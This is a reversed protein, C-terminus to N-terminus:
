RTDLALRLGFGVLVVGTLREIHRRVVPRTVVARARDVLAAVLVLWVIGETAHIAVYLMTTPLPPTGAPLFQPLFTVYFAGVKPNLLNSALGALYARRHTTATAGARDPATRDRRSALLARVGLHVLYAAGVIRLATYAAESAALLASVGLATALGWGALGTCIGAGALFATRRDAVAATRLVLATDAGPTITLLAAVAAFALMSGIM